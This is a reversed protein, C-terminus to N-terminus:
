NFLRGGIWVLLCGRPADLYTIRTDTFQMGNVCAQVLVACLLMLVAVGIILGVVAWALRAGPKLEQEPENM